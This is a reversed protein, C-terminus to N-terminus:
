NLTLKWFTCLTAHLYPPPQRQLMPEATPPMHNIFPPARPGDRHLSAVHAPLNAWFVFHVIRLASSTPMLYVLPHSVATVPVTCSPSGGWPHVAPPQVLVHPPSFIGGEGASHYLGYAVENRYLLATNLVM